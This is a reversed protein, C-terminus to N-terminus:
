IKGARNYEQKLALHKPYQPGKAYLALWLLGGPKVLPCINEIAKWMLDPTTFSKEHTPSILPPMINRSFDKM